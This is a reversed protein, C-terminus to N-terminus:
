RGGTDFQGFGVGLLEVAGETQEVGPQGRDALM